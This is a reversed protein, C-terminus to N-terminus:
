VSTAMCPPLKGLNQWAVPYALRRGLQCSQKSANSRAEVFPGLWVIYMISETKICEVIAFNIITILILFTDLIPFFQLFKPLVSM